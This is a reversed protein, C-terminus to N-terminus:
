PTCGGYDTLNFPVAVPLRGSGVLVNTGATGSANFTVSASCPITFGFGDDWPSSIRLDFGIDSEPSNNLVDNSELSQPVVDTFAQDAVISGTYRNYSSSGAMAVLHWRDADCEKWLVIANDLSSDYAPSGCSSTPPAAGCAEQTNLDFPPTIAVRSQGLLVQAGAPLTDPDFCTSADSPMTFDFGDEGTRLMKLTYDIRQPNTTYDLLDGSEFSYPTVGSFAQSATVSGGYTIVTPSGGATARLHWRESGDCDKWLFLHAESAQNYVPAGCEDGPETGGGSGPSIAVIGGNETARYL